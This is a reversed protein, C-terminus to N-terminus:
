ENANDRYFVYLTEDAIMEKLAIFHLAEFKKVKFNFQQQIEEWKYTKVRYRSQNIIFADYKSLEQIDFHKAFSDKNWDWYSCKTSNDYPCVSISNFQLFLANSIDINKDKLFTYAAKGASYSEKLDTKIAYVSWWIQIIFLISMLIKLLSKIKKDHCIWLIYLITLIIIGSHWVKYVFCSVLILPLLLFLTEKFYTRGIEVILLTFYLFGILLMEINKFDYGSYTILGNSLARIIKRKILTENYLLITLYQNEASPYMMIITSIIYIVFILIASKCIKEKKLLDEFIGLAFIGCSLVFTYLTIEGLLMLIILYQWKCEKRKQYYIASLCIFLFILSYGRAIINYQYLIFYTLPFLLRVIWSFPAKYVFLSVGAFSPIISTLYIYKYSLGLLICLKLWLFWLLPAGETRAVKSILDAISTDRAILYSQAEDAFPEHHFGVFVSLLLWILLYSPFVLKKLFNESM